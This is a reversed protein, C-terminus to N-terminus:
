HGVHKPGLGDHNFYKRTMNLPITEFNKVNILIVRMCCIAIRRLLWYYSYTYFLTYTLPM